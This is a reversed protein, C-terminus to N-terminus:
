EFLGILAQTKIKKYMIRYDFTSKIYRLVRKTAGLHIQSPKQMFRSLLSAALMIDPMTTTFYLLSEILSRFMSANAMKAGDDKKM